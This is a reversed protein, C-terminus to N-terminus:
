AASDIFNSAGVQYKRIVGESCRLIRRDGPKQVIRAGGGLFPHLALQEGEKLIKVRRVGTM